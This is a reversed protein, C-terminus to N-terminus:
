QPNTAQIRHEIFTIRDTDNPRLRKYTSLAARAHIPNNQMLYLESLAYYADAHRPNVMLLNQLVAEARDYDNDRIYATQLQM